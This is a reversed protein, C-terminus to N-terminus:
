GSSASKRKTGTSAPSASMRTTIRNASPSAGGAVGGANLNQVADVFLQPYRTASRLGLQGGNAKDAADSLEKALAAFDEGARARELTRQAKTQM